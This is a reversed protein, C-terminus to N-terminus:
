NRNQKYAYLFHDFYRTLVTKNRKRLENKPLSIEDFPLLRTRATDSVPFLKNQM